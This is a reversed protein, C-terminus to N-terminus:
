NRPSIALKRTESKQDTVINVLYIGSPFQQIDAASQNVYEAALQGIQNYLRITNVAPLNKIKFSQQAPNPYIEFTQDNSVENVDITLERYSCDLTGGCIQYSLFNAMISITTDLIATNTAHPVHDMGEYIEFCHEVGVESLKIDVSNSGDVELVPLLGFAYQIDSGFPVTQDNTGHFLLAPEDGPHIWTTDGIAGAINIIANVDSPYGPNGSNGDLGGELGPNNLNVWAPIESEEDLYALHLAIYGGASSGAIYIQEPDIGHPNSDEAFSKRLYRIAAKGDQVGRMVAETMPGDLSAAIAFGLRYEISVAVYGMKALNQCIPVVDSGTKSGSVFFGGHAVIVVARETSTDGEPMYVDMMLTQPNGDYKVNSGYEVNSLLTFNEFIYNRYREGDCQATSILASLLLTSLLLINKM